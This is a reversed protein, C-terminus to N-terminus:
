TVARQPAARSAARAAYLNMLVVCAITGLAYPIAAVLYVHQLSLQRAILVGGALPGQGVYWEIPGTERWLFLPTAPLTNNDYRYPSAAFLAPFPGIGDPRYIRVAIKIGDRVTIRVDKEEIM